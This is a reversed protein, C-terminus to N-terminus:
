RRRTPPPAVRRRRRPTKARLEQIAQELKLKDLKEETEAIRVFLDRKRPM